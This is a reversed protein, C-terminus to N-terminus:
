AVPSAGEEKHKVERQQAQELCQLITFASEWNLLEFFSEECLDKEIEDLFSDIWRYYQWGTASLLAGLKMSVQIDVNVKYPTIYDLPDTILLYYKAFGRPLVTCFGEFQVTISMRLKKTEIGIKNDEARRVSSGKPLILDFREYIAGGSGYKYVVEGRGKKRFADEVFAARHEMPRSFMELFPNSLLVEPIDERCYMELNQKKFKEDAFYDTLHTSLRDLVFYEAAQSLLQAAKQPKHTATAEALDVAFLDKLPEKEWLTKLAPNEVFAGQIYRCIGESFAYRPVLIIENKENNYILFAEYTRSEVRRGFLRAALYLVSGLCLVVGVLLTLLNSLVASALIHGAILNVGFALLIAVVIFEILNQRSIVVGQVIARKNKTM